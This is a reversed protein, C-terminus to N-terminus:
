DGTKVYGVFWLKRWLQWVPLDSEDLPVFSAEHREGTQLDYWGVVCHPVWWPRLRSWRPRLYPELGKQGGARRWDITREIFRAVAWVLCNSRM